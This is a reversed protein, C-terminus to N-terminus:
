RCCAGCRWLAAVLLGRACARALAAAERPRLPRAASPEPMRAARSSKKAALRSRASATACSTGSRLAEDFIDAPVVKGRIQPYTSEAFAQWEARARADVTVVNLGRQAEHGRHRTPESERIREAASGGAQRASELLAPRLEAPIQEWTSKNILTAGLLLQWRLETMNKAHVYYQSLIAVQPPAGLASM